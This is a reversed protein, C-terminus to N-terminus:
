IFQILFASTCVSYTSKRAHPSVGRKLFFSPRADEVSFYIHLPPLVLLQKELIHVQYNEQNEQLSNKKGLGASAIVAACGWWLHHIQLSTYPLECGFARTSEVWYFQTCQWIITMFRFTGVAFNTKRSVWAASVTCVDVLAATKLILCCMKQLSQDLFSEKLYHFYIIKPTFYGINRSFYFCQLRRGWVSSTSTCLPSFQLSMPAEMKLCRPM